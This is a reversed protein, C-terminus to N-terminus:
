VAVGGVVAPYVARLIKRRYVLDLIASSVSAFTRNQACQCGLPEVHGDM